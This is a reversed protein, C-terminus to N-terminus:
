RELALKAALGVFLAGTARKLWAGVAQSRRLRVTFQDAALVVVTIWVLGIGVFTVGLFAFPWPGSAQHSVFQPLFSIFFLGVKPNLVNTIFGQRFIRRGDVPGESPVESAPAAAHRLLEVGLWALYAAGLWKVAQFAVPSNALLASLGLASLAIHVMCGTGIGAVSWLGARRGGALTRGLAYLTDPGPMLALGLAAVVFVPYNQIGEFM